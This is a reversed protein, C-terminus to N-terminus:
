SAPVKLRNEVDYGSRLNFRKFRLALGDRFYSFKSSGRVHSDIVSLKLEGGGIKGFIEFASM